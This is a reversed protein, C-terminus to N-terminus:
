FILEHNVEKLINEILVKRDKFNFFIYSLYISYFIAISSIFNHLIQIGTFDIDIYSVGNLVKFIPLQKAYLIDLFFFAMLIVTVKKSKHPNEELKIFKLKKRFIYGMVFSFIIYM